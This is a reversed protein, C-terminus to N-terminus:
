ARCRRRGSRRPCARALRFAPAAPRARIFAPNVESPVSLLGLGLLKEGHHEAEQKRETGEAGEATCGAKAAARVDVLRFEGLDVGRDPGRDLAAIAGPRDHDDNVRVRDRVALREALTGHLRVLDRHRGVSDEVHGRQCLGDRSARRHHDQNLLPFQLWFVEYALVPRLERAVALLFHGDFVQQEVRNRYLSTPKM